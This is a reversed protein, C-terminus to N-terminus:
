VIKDEGKYDEAWPCRLLVRDFLCYEPYSYPEKHTLTLVAIHIEIHPNILYIAEKIALITNGTDIADDILLLKKSAVLSSICSKDFDIHKDQTNKSQFTQSVKSEISRLLNLLPYPLLRFLSKLSLRKKTQTSSRQLKVEHYAGQWKQLLLEEYMPRSVYVGGTAVGMLMDPSLDEQVKTLLQKSLIDLQQTSITLVKM